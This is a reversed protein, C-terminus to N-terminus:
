KERLIEYIVIGAFISVALQQGRLNGLSKVLAKKNDDRKKLEKILQPKSLKKYNM